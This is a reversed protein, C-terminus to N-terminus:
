YQNYDLQDRSGGHRSRQDDLRDRSGGYRDRNDDLRDRSGRYRDRNDDLRDRSGSYHDRQDELRDRSGGYRDRKDDLRDRSGSYHDRQDELRDRSGGYQDRKVDLHDRSGRYRDRQDDLRDRSGGYQDRQDELRDRSGGYRDRQNDLHDRSGGYRDRKDDLHDRSGRYSDHQDDQYRTDIDSGKVDHRETGSYYSQQDDESKYGAPRASYSNQSVAKDQYVQPNVESTDDRYQEGAKDHFEMDEPYGEANQEKEGKKRCCCFILLALCLLGAIVGGVIYTTSGLSMSAPVVALTLNCSASAVENTSTCIFFGSTDRSINFLSLLGNEETTKLPFPRPMNQVSYSNWKYSPKPSGEVSKCTLTIDQWYEAKGQITCLPKSPPELVLLSTTASTTGEDDGPIMVSCQFKHSEQMTVKTLHLTSVHTTTDVELRVRNEYEPVIDVTSDTFFTAVRQTPEDPNNQLYSWKLVLLTFDPNAPTFSCTLTVDDGKSVKYLQQPISVELSRCCPLVTLILFLEQWGLRTKTAM